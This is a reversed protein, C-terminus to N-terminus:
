PEKPTPPVSDPMVFKAPDADYRQRQELYYDESAFLAKVFSWQHYVGWILVGGAVLTIVLLGWAVYETHVGFVFSTADGSLRNTSTVIEGDTSVLTVDEMGFPYGFTRNSWIYAVISSAAPVDGLDIRGKVEPHSSRVTKGDVERVVVADYKMWNTKGWSPDSVFYIHPIDKGSKNQVRIRAFNIDEPDAYNRVANEDKLDYLTRKDTSDAHPYWSGLTVEATIPARGFFAAIDNQFIVALAASLIGVFLTGIFKGLGRM